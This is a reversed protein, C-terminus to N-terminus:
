RKSFILQFPLLVIDVAAALIILIIAVFWTSIGANIDWRWSGPRPNRTTELPDDQKYSKITSRTLKFFRYGSEPNEIM